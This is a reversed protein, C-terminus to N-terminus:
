ATVPLTPKLMMASLPQRPLTIVFRMYLQEAITRLAYIGLFASKVVIVFM